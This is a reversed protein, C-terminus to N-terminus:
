EIPAGIKKNIFWLGFMFATVVIATGVQGILTQTMFSIYDSDMFCQYLFVFPIGLLVIYAESKVSSVERKLLLKNARDENYQQLAQYLLNRSESTGVDSAIKYYDSFRDLYQNGTREALMDLADAVSVGTEMAIVVNALEDSLPREGHFELATEEIARKMNNGNKYREIIMKLCPGVQKEIVDMRRNRKFSFYQYPFLLGAFLFIVGLFINSFVFRSLGSLVLATLVCIVAYDGYTLSYGAQACLREIKMRKSIKVKQVAFESIKKRVINEKLMKKNQKKRRAFVDGEQFTEVILYGFVIAIACIVMIIKILLRVGRMPRKLGPRLRM